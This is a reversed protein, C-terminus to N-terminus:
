RSLKEQTLRDMLTRLTELNETIILTENDFFSYLLLPQNEFLLVRVDKNRDTIDSFASEMALSRLLERTSFLPGLDGGLNREWSLMGAFANEFSSLKIILFASEGLAGYMFLNDLARILSGPARSGLGVLFEDTSLLRATEGTVKNLVVHKLEIGPVGASAESLSAILAERSIDSLNLVVETNSSVLRSEPIVVEPTATKIKFDSYAYWVGVGGLVLFFFSGLLLYFFQKKKSDKQPSSFVASGSGKKLQEARHISVLSEKQKELAEAVDGQFTRIQKLPSEKKDM